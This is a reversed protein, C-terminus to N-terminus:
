DIRRLVEIYSQTPTIARADDGWTMVSRDAHVQLIGEVEYNWRYADFWNRLDRPTTPRLAWSWPIHVYILYQPRVREIDRIMELQMERNRSHEATLYYVNVFRSASPRQAEFFLQTESGLVAISDGPATHSKVYQAIQVCEPFPNGAYRSHSIVDDSVRATFYPEYRAFGILLGAAVWVGMVISARRGQVAGVLYGISLAVFPLLSVFYHSAFYFGPVISLMSALGFALYPYRGKGGVVDRLLVLFGAIAMLWLVEFGSVVTRVKDVFNMLGDMLGVQNVFERAFQFSWFWLLPFKGLALYYAAVLLYPALSGAVFALVQLTFRPPRKSGAALAHVVMFLALMPAFFLAPQKMLFALGFCLGSGLYLRVSARDRALLFLYLGAMAFMAMFFTAHGAFGLVTPSLAMFGFVLAGTVGALGGHTLRLTLFILAMTAANVLLLGLHIAFPSQGFLALFIAYMFYSGPLKQTYASVYVPVGHLLQQAIYGFEGEDRELPFNLHPVRAASILLIVALALITWIRSRNLIAETRGRVAPREVAQGPRWGVEIPL